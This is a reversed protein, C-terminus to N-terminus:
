VICGVACCFYLTFLHIPLAGWSCSKVVKLERCRDQGRLSDVEQIMSRPAIKCICWFWVATGGFNVDDVHQMAIGSLATGDARKWCCHWRNHDTEQYHNDHIRIELGWSSSHDIINIMIRWVRWVEYIERFSIHEVYKKAFIFRNLYLVYTAYTFTTLFKLVTRKTDM